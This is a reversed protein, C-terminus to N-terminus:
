GSSSPSLITQTGFSSARQLRGAIFRTRNLGHKWALAQFIGSTFRKGHLMGVAEIVETMRLPHTINPDMSKAIVLPGTVAAKNRSGRKPHLM